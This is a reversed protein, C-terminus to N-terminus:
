LAKSLYPGNISYGKKYYYTRVGIGSIVIIKKKDFEDKSIREAESLLLAGFGQHQIAGKESLPIEEGFVHLERILSTKKDIESRINEWHNKNKEYENEENPIRLRLFAALALTKKDEISIFIEKGGNAKYEMKKLLPQNIKKYNLGAEKYRIENIKIGLAKAKREAIERINSKKVGEAILNSPIDRQIRAIRVYKPIYKYANAIISSAVETSYPEYEGSLFMKHLQTGPIVLTPYIKLTDPCFNANSFIKKFMEIDQKPNSGPLGLMIHYAVKFASNKLLYTARIVDAVTHGRNIKKYIKDSPNQVGLEVKTAGFDLMEKIETKGCVDPRTEFTLGILRHLATENLKKADALNKSKCNNLADYIGKIFNYKYAYSISLFTGGMVILDCKQTLHGNIEFQHLRAKVQKFSDFDNDIARLAAPENGTYSKPAKKSNPCYICNWKCSDKPCIMVAIPTVGSLTRMPKRKLLRIIKKEQALTVDLKKNRQLNPFNKLNKIISSNKLFGNLKFKKSAKKKLEDLNRKGNLLQEIIYLAAVSQKEDMRLAWPNFSIRFCALLLM